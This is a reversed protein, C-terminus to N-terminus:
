KQTENAQKLVLVAFSFCTNTNVSSLLNLSSQINILRVLYLKQLGPTCATDENVVSLFVVQLYCSSQKYGPPWPTLASVTFWWIWSLVNTAHREWRQRM